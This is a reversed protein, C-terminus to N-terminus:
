GNCDRSPRGVEEALTAVSAVESIPSSKLLAFSLCLVIVVAVPMVPGTPSGPRGGERGVVAPALTTDLWVALPPLLSLRCGGLELFPKKLPFSPLELGPLLM